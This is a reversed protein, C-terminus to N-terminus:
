TIMYKHNSLCVFHNNKVFMVKTYITHQLKYEITISLLSKSYTKTTIFGPKIFFILAYIFAKPKIM